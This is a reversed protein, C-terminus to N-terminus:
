MDLVEKKHNPYDLYIIKDPVVKLLTYAPDTPGQKWYAMWKDKWKDKKVTEDTVIEAKGEISISSHDGPRYLFVSAMPNNKIEQVKNSQAGTAFFFVLNDDVPLNAMMRGKPIGSKDITILNSYEYTAAFEIIIKKLEKNSM